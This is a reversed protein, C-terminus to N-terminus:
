EEAIQRAYIREREGANLECMPVAEWTGNREIAGRFACAALREEVRESRPEAVEHAAMFNHMVINLFRAQGRALRWALKPLSLGEVHFRRRFYRWSEGLIGPRRAVMALRRWLGEGPLGGSRGVREFTRLFAATYERTAEDAPVLDLIRVEPYLALLTTFTSCDPHGVLLGGRDMERGVGESIRAWTSEPSVPSASYRTRGVDAEPQFSAMRFADLRRPDALLWRPIEAISDLNRETVTVTHAAFFRVGTRERCGLILEVFDQRLPHLDAESRLERIPFGPRGAQTIDIHVALKRLGGEVVLRDLYEPHDLLVQGHTMIMPALDADIAHRVIAILEDARDARWYADVVDGGTIQLGGSPGMLRRNAEIQVKMQELTPLPTRNANAPLYCHTCGFSCYSPGMTYGCHVLQRGLTQHPVKLSEPLEQWRQGLLTEM